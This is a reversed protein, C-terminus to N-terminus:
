HPYGIGGICPLFGLPTAQQDSHFRSRWSIHQQPAQISDAPLVLHSAQHRFLSFQGFFGHRFRNILFAVVSVRDLLTWSCLAILLHRFDKLSPVAGSSTCSDQFLSLRYIDLLPYQGLLHIAAPFLRRFFAQSMARRTMKGGGTPTHPLHNTVNFKIDISQRCPSSAQATSLAASASCQGPISESSNLLSACM